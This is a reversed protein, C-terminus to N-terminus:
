IKDNQWDVAGSNVFYNAFEDRIKKAASTSNVNNPKLGTLISSDNRWSGPIMIGQEYTDVLGPTLYNSDTENSRLWNHLSVCSEIVSEILDVKANIPTNFIRWKSNLIGFSNEIVRRARSLRYNFIRQSINLQQKSYPKM